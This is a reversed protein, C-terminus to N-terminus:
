GGRSRSVGAAYAGIGLTAAALLLLAWFPLTPISQTRTGPPPKIPPLGGPSFYGFNADTYIQGGSLDFSNPNTGGTLQRGELVGYEDTVRIRWNGTPVPIFAYFGNQRTVTSAVLREFSGDGNEDQEIVLTVDGIGPESSERIGNQNEDDWVVYGAAGFNAGIFNVDFQAQATVEQDGAYVATAVVTNTHIDGANGTLSASFQCAVSSRAPVAVPLVCSGQGNLDGFKDDVLRTLTVGVYGVNRTTVTYNVTGGPQVLISRDGEKVLEIAPSTYGFDADVFNEGIGLNVDRPETGGTLLKGALVGATDTVRVQYLGAALGSFQYNGTADTATVGVRTVGRYLALSVNGLGPEGPDFIGNANEDEWVQDGIVGDAPDVFLISAPGSDFAINGQSDVGTATVRNRHVDLPEGTVTQTFQCTYSNRTSVTQNVECSSGALGDLPGFRSDILDTITVPTASINLVSVRYTVDSSPAEHIFRTPVKLVVIRPKPIDAYGFDAELFVEGPTIMINLPEPPNTLYKDRLIQNDDTVEVRYYGAVLNIFAYEGSATTSTTEVVTEYSGNEDVDRSLRLTVNNLGFEGEDVAGNGNNDMWVLNGIAASAPDEIGVIADDAAFV